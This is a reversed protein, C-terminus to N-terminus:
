RSMGMEERTLGLYGGLTIGFEYLDFVPHLRRETQRVWQLVALAAAKATEPCGGQKAVLAASLLKCYEGFEELLQWSHAQCPDASKLGAAVAGRM